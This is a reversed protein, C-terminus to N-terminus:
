LALKKSVSQTFRKMGSILIKNECSLTWGCGLKSSDTCLVLYSSSQMELLQFDCQKNWVLALNKLPAVIEPELENPLPEDWDLDGTMMGRIQDAISAEHTEHLSRVIRVVDGCLRYVDRNTIESSNPIEPFEKRFFGLGNESFEMDM